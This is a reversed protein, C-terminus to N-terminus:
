HTFLSLKNGWTVDSLRIIGLDLLVSGMTEKIFPM